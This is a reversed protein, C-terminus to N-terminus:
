RRNVEALMALRLGPNRRDAERVSGFALVASQWRATASRASATRYTLKALVRQPLRRALVGPSAKSIRNVIGLSVAAEADFFTEQDIMRSITSIPKRTREAYINVLRERLNGLLLQESPSVDDRDFYPSHIMVYGNPSISVDDFGCLLMSAASFAMSEVSAVKRGPYARIADLMAFAEFLSGGESHFAVRIPSGDAPLQNKFWKASLEGPQNGIPGDISITRM